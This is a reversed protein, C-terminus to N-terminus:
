WERVGPAGGGPDGDGGVAGDGGPGGGPDGNGGDGGPGGGPDGGDVGGIEPISPGPSTPPGTTPPEPTSPDDSPEQPQSPQDSPGQSTPPGSPPPSSGPSRTSPVDGSGATDLDFKKAPRGELAEKTYAGWIEAPFGGGNVRPQGGAGYLPKQAGNAPDKGMVGIVTSLDPTYGAFWAAKDEEATGTKGAAPRGAAQAATGTGGEVVSRLSATTTDAAARSVARESDHDPLDVVEGGRTIKSVMSYHGHKGHNALTAYAEAMDLPSATAVGLAISGDETLNPTTKPLGLDIATQKVKKPGVDIGMQAFVSNVSKDMATTVPIQGYSRDDENAPAYDTGQGDSVVERKNTGDYVTSLKIPRGDQTTSKNQVASTFVFPKFTSGVQYERSTAANTYQETFGIGGYMAVVKGTKPDVSAGGARVYKDIKRNKKDLKSMLKDDVADRMAKQKKPQFTTTIRFGGARLRQEDIINNSTLYNKVAEVLYGREGSMNRPPKPEDPEPFEMGKRDSKKLWGEEVMGDLVYKWRAVARKKNEPHARTDYANPSNVLAALYASEETTLEKVEKGYYAHAASQIGYANRGFYSTNLYGQLIENKSVENDLKLAIFFEKAKRTVTQDQSLYYNKVYQQTITSGSQRGGGTLMNWGARAMAQPDVASEHYFDRDEAALVAHQTEKPVKSLPVSERNIDGDRAIQSGDAYLYVNTQAAAAENPAPISVLLYGAVLAGSILLVILLLGGLVMRWTPLLRRWGTRRRKERGKKGKEKKGKKEMMGAEDSAAPPTQAAGPGDPGGFGGPAGPGGSGAAAQGMIATEAPSAPGVAATGAATDGGTASDGGGAPGGTAASGGGTGTGSGTGTGGSGAPSPTAHTAAEAAAAAAGWSTTRIARTAGSEAAANEAAGDEPTSGEPADSEAASSEAANSETGPRPQAAATGKPSGSHGSPGPGDTGTGPTTGPDASHADDDEAAGDPPDDEAPGSTAPTSSTTPVRSKGPTSSTMPIRSKGPAEDAGPGEGEPVGSDSAAGDPRAGGVAGGEGSAPEDGSTDGSRSARSGAARSSSTGSGSTGSGSTGSSPTGEDSAEGDSTGEASADEASAGEDPTPRDGPTGSGDSDGANPRGGPAPTPAPTRPGPKAGRATRKPAPDAAPGAPKGPHERKAPADGQAPSKEPPGDSEPERGEADSNPEDSM